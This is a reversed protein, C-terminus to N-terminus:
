WTSVSGISHKIPLGHISYPTRVPYIYPALVKISVLIGLHKCIVTVKGLDVGHIPLRLFGPRSPTKRHTQCGMDNSKQHNLPYFHSFFLIWSFRSFNHYQGGCIQCLYGYGFDLQSHSWLFLSSTTSYWPLTSLIWVITTNRRWKTNLYLTNSVNM